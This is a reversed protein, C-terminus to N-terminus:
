PNFIFIPHYFIEVVKNYDISEKTITKLNQTENDTYETTTEKKNIISGYLENLFLQAM